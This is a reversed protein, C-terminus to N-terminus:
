QATLQLGSPVAPVNGAAFPVENSPGSEGFANAASVVCFYNGPGSVVQQVPVSRAAPDAVVVTSTYTGAGPGCKVRFEAVAGGTGQAWTWALRSKTIDVSIVAQAWALSWSVLVIVGGVIWAVHWRRM